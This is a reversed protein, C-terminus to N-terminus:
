RNTEERESEEEAEFEAIERDLVAIQEDLSLGDLRANEEEQWARHEALEGPMMNAEDEAIEAELRKINRDIARIEQATGGLQPEPTESRVLRQELRELRRRANM